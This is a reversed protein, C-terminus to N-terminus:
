STVPQQWKPPEAADQEAEPKYGQV